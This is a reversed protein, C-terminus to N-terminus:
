PFINREVEHITKGSSNGFTSDTAPEFTLFAGNSPHERVWDYNGPTPTWGCQNKEFDCAACLVEDSGDACDSRLNCVEGKPICQPVGCEFENPSCLPKASHHSTVILDHSLM